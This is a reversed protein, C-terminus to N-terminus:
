CSVFSYGREQARNVAVIGAPVIRASSVLNATLEAYIADPTSGVSHAISGAIAHTSLACVAFQAGLKALSELTTGRNPGNENHGAANYINAVPAQKTKPDQVESRAALITGYKTWMADNYGLPASRHRLVIVVSLESNEVGYDNKNVRYFNGAFALANGLGGAETTDFLFRHKASAKEFWDDKEHRAPEWRAATARSQQARAVGATAMLAAVGANLKTLFSRRGAPPFPDPNM